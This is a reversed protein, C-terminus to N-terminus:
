PCNRAKEPVDASEETLILLQAVVPAQPAYASFVPVKDLLLKEDVLALPCDSLLRETSDAELCVRDAARTKVAHRTFDSRM